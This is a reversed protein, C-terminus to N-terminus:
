RSFCVKMNVSNDEVLLVISRPTVLVPQNPGPNEGPTPLKTTSSVAQPVTLADMQCSDPSNIAGKTTLPINKESDHPLEPSPPFGYTTARALPIKPTMLVSSRFELCLGLIRAFKHPGVRFILNTYKLESSISTCTIPRSPEIRM